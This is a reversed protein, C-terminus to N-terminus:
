GETFVGVATPVAPRVVRFTGPGSLSMVPAKATLKGIERDAGPTDIMVQLFGIHGMAGAAFIGVTKSAGSAIVIDDSTAATTGAALITAQAM